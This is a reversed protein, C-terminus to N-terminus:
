VTMRKPGVCSTGEAFLDAIVIYLQDFLHVHVGNTHRVIRRINMKQFRAVFQTKIHQIFERAPMVGVVCGSTASQNALHDTAVDIMRANQKPVVAVFTAPVCFVVILESAPIRLLSLHKMGPLLESQNISIM